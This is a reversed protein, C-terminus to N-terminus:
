HQITKLAESRIRRLRIVSSYGAGIRIGLPLCETGTFKEFVLNKEDASRQFRLSGAVLQSRPLLVQVVAIMAREVPTLAVNGGLEITEGQVVRYLMGRNNYQGSLFTSLLRIAGVDEASALGQLWERPAELLRSLRHPMDKALVGDNAAARAFDIAQEFFNQLKEAEDASLGQNKAARYGMLNKFNHLVVEGKGSVLPIRDMVDPQNM